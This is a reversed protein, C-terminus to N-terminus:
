IEVYASYPITLPGNILLLAVLFNAQNKNTNESEYNPKIFTLALEHTGIEFLYIFSYIFLYIFLYISLYIYLYIFLYTFLYNCAQLKCFKVVEIM